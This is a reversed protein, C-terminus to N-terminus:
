WETFVEVLGERGAYNRASSWRWHEPEDVYGRKVPNNHIYELKQRLMAEGEIGQPHSGQQWLQHTRDGRQAKRAHRLRKLVAEARNEVLLDIIRRASYSKFRRWTEPLDPAQAVAHLHNELIVFGYLKLGEHERQYSWTDFLIQVAEQRTFVPLWEIITCTLFHPRDPEAFRYRSRSM